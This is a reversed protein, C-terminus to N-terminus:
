CNRRPQSGSGIRFCSIGFFLNALLIILKIRDKRSFFRLVRIFRPRDFCIKDTRLRNAELMRRQGTKGFLIQLSYFTAVQRAMLPM